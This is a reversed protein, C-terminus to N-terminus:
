LNAIGIGGIVLGALVAITGFVYGATQNAGKAWAFMLPPDPQRRSADVFAWVGLAIMLIGVIMIFVAIGTGM